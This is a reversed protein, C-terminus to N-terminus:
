KNEMALHRGWRFPLMVPIGKQITQVKGKGGSGHLLFLLFFGRFHCQVIRISSSSSHFSYLSLAGVVRRRRGRLRM